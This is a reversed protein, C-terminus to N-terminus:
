TKGTAPASHKRRRTRMISRFWWAFLVLLAAASLAIAVGSVATSRVSVIRRDLEFGGSASYLIVDLEDAGSTRTGISVAENYDKSTLTILQNPNAPLVLDRSSLHVLIRVPGSRTLASSITIPVRGRASTLTVSGSGSLAIANGITKLASIPARLFAARRESTMGTSEAIFISDGLSGLLSHNTPTTTEVAREARRAGAVAAASPADQGPTGDLTATALNDNSGVPIKSFITSLQATELIPNSRLGDLVVRLLSPNVPGEALAVVARPPNAFPIEFYVQALDALLNEGALVPDDSNASLERSLTSEAVFAVPPQRTSGCQEAKGVLLPATPTLTRGAFASVSSEPVVFESLCANQLAALGRMDVPSQSAYPATAIAHAYHNVLAIQGRAIGAKVDGGLGAAALASADVNAFPTTLLQVRAGPRAHSVLADISHLL